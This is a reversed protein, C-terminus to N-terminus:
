EHAPFRFRKLPTLLREIGDTLAIPSTSLTLMSPGCVLLILRLLSFTAQLVAEKSIRIVWWSFWITDGNIFFLNFVFMFLVLWRMPKISSWLYTLPVQVLLLLMLLLVAPVVFVVIHQVLCTLVIYAIMLLIKMRPDLRHIVSNGPVFQGLSLDANM